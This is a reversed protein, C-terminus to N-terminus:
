TTAEKDKSMKKKTKNHRITELQKAGTRNPPSVFVLHFFEFVTRESPFSVNVKAGTSLKTLGHENMSYGRNLAHRRMLTNFFSSGTFYLIAFPYESMPCYMFDLRRFPLGKSLQGICLCKVNGRALVSVILGNALLENIVKDFAWVVSSTVIVDVDGCLPLQRRYSGVVRFYLKEKLSKNACMCRQITKQIAKAFKTVESRPIKTLLDKYLEAGIRQARTLQKYQKLQSITYIRKEVLHRATKPGIGYVGQLVFFPDKKSEEVMKIKNTELYEQILDLIEPPMQLQHSSTLQVPLLLIQHAAEFCQRQQHKSSEQRKLVELISMLAKVLGINPSCDIYKKSAM